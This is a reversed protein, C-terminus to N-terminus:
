KSYRHSSMGTEKLAHKRCADFQKMWKSFPKSVFMGLKNSTIETSNFLSCAKCFAGDRHWSYHLWPHELLWPPKFRRLCGNMMTIPYLTSELPHEFQIIHMKLETPLKRTDVNSALLSGIDHMTNYDSKGSAHGFFKSTEAHETDHVIPVNQDLSM